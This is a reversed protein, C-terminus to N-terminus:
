LDNMFDKNLPQIPCKFTLSIINQTDKEYKTVLNISLGAKGYRGTRGIRHIYCEINNSRPLDYNIVLSLQQIDIGRSLLDTSILCKYGGQKFKRIIDARDYKSMSSNITLVSYDQELFVKLTEANKKTNVYVIFQPVQITQLMEILVKLKDDPNQVEVYTQKIGDLTMKEKKILIQVPNDLIHNSLAIVDSNLTASFLCIQVNEGLGELIKKIEEKFSGSLLEDCEDVVLLKIHEFLHPYEKLIHILRGPTAIIIQAAKEDTKGQYVGGLERINNAADSGGVTFSFKINPMRIALSKGVVLTQSALESTPSLVIVQSANLNEDINELASILFAGTKGTGSQSQALIDRRKIMQPIAFSQIRSPELYGLAVIGLLLDEKLGDESGMNEFKDCADTVVEESCMIDDNDLLETALTSYNFKVENEQLSKQSRDDNRRIDKFRSRNDSGGSGRRDDGGGGGGRRDYNDNNRFRNNSYNNSNTNSNSNNNFNSM